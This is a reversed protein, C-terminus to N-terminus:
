GNPAGAPPSSRDTTWGEVIYTRRYKSIRRATERGVDRGLRRVSRHSFYRIVGGRKDHREEGYVQLLQV